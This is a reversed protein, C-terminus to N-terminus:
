GHWRPDRVEVTELPLIEGGGIHAVGLVVGGHGVHGDGERADAHFVTQTLIQALRPMVWSRMASVSFYAWTVKKKLPPTSVTLIGALVPHQDGGGLHGGVVQLRLHAGILDGVLADLADEGAVVVHDDEVEGVAVHHAVGAHVLGGTLATSVTSSHTPLTTSAVSFIPPMAMIVASWPLASCITWLSPTLGMVACVVLRTGKMRQPAASVGASLVPAMPEAGVPSCSGASFIM